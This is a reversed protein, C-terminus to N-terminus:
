YWNPEMPKEQDEEDLEKIEEPESAVTSTNTKEELLETM